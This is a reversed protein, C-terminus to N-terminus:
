LLTLLTGEDLVVLGYALHKARELTFNLHLENDEHNRLRQALKHEGISELYLVTPKIKIFCDRSSNSSVLRGNLKNLVDNLITIEEEYDNLWRLKEKMPLMTYTFGHKYIRYPNILRDEIILLKLYLEWERTDPIITIGDKNKKPFINGYINPALFQNTKEGYSLGHSTNLTFSEGKHMYITMSTPLNMKDYEYEYSDVYQFNDIEILEEGFYKSQANLKLLFMDMDVVSLKSELDKIIKDATDKDFEMAKKYTILDDMVSHMECYRYSLQALYEAREKSILM